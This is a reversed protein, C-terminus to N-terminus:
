HACGGMTARALECVTGHDSGSPESILELDTRRRKRWQGQGPSGVRTSLQLSAAKGEAQRVALYVPSKEPRLPHIHDLPM